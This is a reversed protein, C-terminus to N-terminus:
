GSATSAAEREAFDVFRAIREERPRIPCSTCLEGDPRRYARCCAGDRIFLARRGLGTFARMPEIVPWIFAELRDVLAQRLAAPDPVARADPHAADPDDPM